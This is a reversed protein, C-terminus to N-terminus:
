TEPSLSSMKIDPSFGHTWIQGLVPQPIHLANHHSRAPIGSQDWPSAATQVYPTATRACLTHVPAM